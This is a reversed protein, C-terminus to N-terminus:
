TKLRCRLTKIEFARFNLALGSGDPKLEELENELMDCLAVRQVPLNLTIRASVAAKKAEYFRLILDGSGDEAPKVTELIVNERDIAFLSFLDTRGPVVTPRVNM